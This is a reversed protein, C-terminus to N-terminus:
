EGMALYKRITDVIWCRMELKNVKQQYRYAVHRDLIAQVSQKKDESKAVKLKTLYEEMHAMDESTPEPEYRVHFVPALEAMLSDLEPRETFVIGENNYDLLLTKKRAGRVERGGAGFGHEEFSQLTQLPSYLSDPAAETKTYRLGIWLLVYFASERDDRLSHRISLNRLLKVSM